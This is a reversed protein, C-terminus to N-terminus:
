FTNQQVLFCSRGTFYIMLILKLECFVCGASVKLRTRTAFKFAKSLTGLNVDNLDIGLEESAVTLMFKDADARCANEAMQKCLSRLYIIKDIEEDCISFSYIKDKGEQTQRCNLSFARTSDTIDFICRISSLSMLKVHKYPKIANHCHNNNNTNINNRMINQHNATTTPSKVNSFARSRKKCVELTDSFLFLILSDGRGSLNDTLETVECRSM